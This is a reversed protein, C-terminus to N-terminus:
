RSLLHLQKAKIITKKGKGSPILKHDKMWELTKYLEHREFNKKKDSWKYFGKIIDEQSTPIKDILLDNWVAYLTAVAECEESTKNKFLKLLKDIESKIDGFCLDFLEEHEAFNVDPIYKTNKSVNGDIVKVWKLEQFIEEVKKKAEIDLPGAAHIAYNGELPLECKKECLYLLKENQIAGYHEKKQFLWVVHANLIARKTLTNTIDIINHSNEVETQNNILEGKFAKNLISQTLRDTYVKAKNYREEIKDAIAFLEKVKKVIEKQEEISPFAIEFKALKQANINSQSVGDTKVSLKWEKAFITNLSYNLYEPDLESLNNIKILYGAFIAQQGGRYISTKGVLEPSNTRNFLVTLPELNYKKIENDDSTYVLNQWDIEGNQLNGMRLVPIKGEKKSKTSTGYNFSECVKDLSAFCWEAPIDYNQEIESSNYIAIITNKQSLNKANLLRAQKIEEIINKSIKLEKNEKRWQKTIEGTVAQMLVSQRFRKIILPIKDLRENTKDVRALIKDLREVIQKQENISPLPINVKNVFDNFNLNRLNTTQTQYEDFVGNAYAFKLYYNLFAPNTNNKLSLKRFFNSCVLPNNTSEISKNDILVTRAVPQSPGGGSVEVVIDGIALNRKELSSKKIYRIASNKARDQNWFKYDTGRIVNVLESYESNPSEQGWDGGIVFSILNELKEETWNKPLNAM